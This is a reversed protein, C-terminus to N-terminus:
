GAKHTTAFLAAYVGGVTAFVAIATLTIYIALASWHAYTM